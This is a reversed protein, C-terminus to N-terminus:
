FSFVNERSTRPTAPCEGGQASLGFRTNNLISTNNYLVNKDTPPLVNKDGWVNKGEWVMYIKREANDKELREIDRKIYGCEELDSLWRRITREDKGYLNAFYANSAWCYGYKNSLAFLEGYMLKENASLREDYRVEAPIIAFYSPENKM